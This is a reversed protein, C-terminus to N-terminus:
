WKSMDESHWELYMLSRNVLYLGVGALNALLDTEHRLEGLGLSKCEENLLELCGLLKTFDPAPAGADDAEKRVGVAFAELGAKLISFASVHDDRGELPEYPTSTYGLAYSGSFHLRKDRPLKTVQDGAAQTISNIDLVLV